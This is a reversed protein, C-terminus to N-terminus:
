ILEEYLKVYKPVINDIDFLKAQALANAKFTNHTEKDKLIELANKCMDHIDGVNSM